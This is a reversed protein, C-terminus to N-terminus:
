VRQTKYFLWRSVHESAGPAISLSATNTVSAVHNALFTGKTNLIHEFVNKAVSWAVLASGAVLVVILARWLWTRAKSWSQISYWFKGDDEPTRETFSDRGASYAPVPASASLLRTFAIRTSQARTQPVCCKFLCSKVTHYSKVAEHHGRIMNMLMSATGPGVPARYAQRKVYKSIWLEFCM